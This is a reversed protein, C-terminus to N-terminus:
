LKRQKRIKEHINRAEKKNTNISFIYIIPPIIKQMMKDFLTEINNM